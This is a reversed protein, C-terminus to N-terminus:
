SSLWFWSRAPACQGTRDRCRGSRRESLLALLPTPLFPPRIAVYQVQPFFPLNALKLAFCGHRLAFSPPPWSCVLHVASFIVQNKTPPSLSFRSPPVQLSSPFPTGFYHSKTERYRGVSDITNLPSSCHRGGCYSQQRTHSLIETDVPIFALSFFVWAVSSTCASSNM